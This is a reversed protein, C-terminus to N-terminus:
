WFASVFTLKGFIFRTFPNQESGIFLGVAEHIVFLIWGVPRTFFPYWVSTLIPCVCRCHSASNLWYCLHFTCYSHYTHKQINIYIYIYMCECEYSKLTVIHVHMNNAHNLPWFRSTNLNSSRRLKAKGKNNTFTKAASHSFNRRLNSTGSKKPPHYWLFFHWCGGFDGFM